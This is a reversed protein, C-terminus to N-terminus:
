FARYTNKLNHIQMRTKLKQKFTGFIRSPVHHTSRCLSEDGNFHHNLKHVIIQKSFADYM